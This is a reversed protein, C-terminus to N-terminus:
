CKEEGTDTQKKRTGNGLARCMKLGLWMSGVERSRARFSLLRLTGIEPEVACLTNVESM